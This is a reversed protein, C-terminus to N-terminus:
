VTAGVEVCAISRTPTVSSGVPAGECSAVGLGEVTVCQAGGKEGLLGFGELMSTARAHIAPWENGGAQHM